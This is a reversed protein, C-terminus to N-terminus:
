LMFNVTAFNLHLDYYIGIYLAIHKM